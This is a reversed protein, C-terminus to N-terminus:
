LGANESRPGDSINTRSIWLWYLAFGLPALAAIGL